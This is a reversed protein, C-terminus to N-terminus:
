LLSSSRLKKPSPQGEDSNSNKRKLDQEITKSKVHRARCAIHVREGTSITWSDGRRKNANNVSNFVKETLVVDSSTCSFIIKFDCLKFDEEM